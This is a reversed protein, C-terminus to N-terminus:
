GPTLWLTPAAGTRLVPETGYTFTQSLTSTTDGAENLWIQAPAQNFLTSFNPASAGAPITQASEQYLIRVTYPWTQAGMATVPSSFNLPNTFDPYPFFLAVQGDAGTIGYWFEGAIECEVVAYAAPKPPDPLGPLAPNAVLLQARLLALAPTAARTAASFLWVGPTAEDPSTPADTPFIGRFPVDVAYALSLYRGRRDAVEFIFRTPTVDDDWPTTNGAPYELHRLGPLGRFAYIGAGTRFATAKRQPRGDPWATVQLDDNVPSKEAPDWFRIGLLTFVSQTELPTLTPARLDIM